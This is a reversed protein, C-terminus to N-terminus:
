ALNLLAKGLNFGFAHWDRVGYTFVVTKLEKGISRGNIIAGGSHPNLAFSYPEILISSASDLKQLTDQSVCNQIAPLIMKIAQGLETLGNKVEGFTKLKLTTIINALSSGLDPLTSCTEFSTEGHSVLLGKVILAVEESLPAAQSEPVYIIDFSAQGIRFGFDYWNGSQYDGMAKSVDAFIEVGNVLINEGVHYLLNLPHAWAVSAKVIIQETEIAAPVCKQIFPPLAGMANSLDMMGDKTGDFTHKSFDVVAQEIWGGFVDTNTVCPAIDPATVSSGMGVFFGGIIDMVQNFDLGKLNEKIQVTEEKELRLNLNSGALVSVILALGIFVKM